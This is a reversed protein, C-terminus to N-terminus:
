AATEPVPPLEAVALVEDENVYSRIIPRRVEYYRTGAGYPSDMPRTAPVAIMWGSRRTYVLVARVRGEPEAM